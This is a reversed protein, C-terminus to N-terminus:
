IIKRAVKVVGIISIQHNKTGVIFVYLPLFMEYCMLHASCVSISFYVACYFCHMAYQRGPFCCNSMVVLDIM